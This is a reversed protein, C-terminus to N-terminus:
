SFGTSSIDIIRNDLMSEALLRNELTPRGRGVKSGTLYLGTSATLRPTFCLNAHDGNPVIFRTGSLTLQGLLDVTVEQGAKVAIGQTASDDCRFSFWYHREGASVELTVTEILYDGVPCEIPQNLARIAVRIGDRSALTGSISDIQTADSPLKLEAVLSGQGALEAM